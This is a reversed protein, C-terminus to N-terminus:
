PGEGSVLLLTHPWLADLVAPDNKLRAFLVLGELHAIVARAVSQEAHERPIGGEDAAQGLVAGIGLVQVPQAREHSGHRLRGGAEARLLGRCLGIQPGRPVKALM